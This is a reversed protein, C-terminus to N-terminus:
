EDIKEHYGLIRDLRLRLEKIRLDDDYAPERGQLKLIRKQDMLLALEWKVEALKKDEASVEQKM